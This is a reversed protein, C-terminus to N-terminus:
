YKLKKGLFKPTKLLIIVGFILPLIALVGFLIFQDFNITNFISFDIHMFMSGLFTGLTNWLGHILITIRLSGTYEYILCMLFGFAGTSLVRTVMPGINAPPITFFTTESFEIYWPIHFCGFIFSNLIILFYFHSKKNSNKDFEKLNEQLYGRFMLEESIGVAIAQFPFSILIIANPPLIQPALVEVQPFFIILAIIIIPTLLLIAIIMLYGIYKLDKKWDDWPARVGLGYYAVSVREVLLIQFILFFIMSLKEYPGNYKWIIVTRFLMILSFLGIFAIIFTSPKREPPEEPLNFAKKESFLLYGVPICFVASWLIPMLFIGQPFQDYIIGDAQTLPIVWGFDILFVILASGIFSLYPILYKLNKRM